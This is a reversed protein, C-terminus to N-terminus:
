NCKLYNMFNNNMTENVGVARRRAGTGTRPAELDARTERRAAEPAGKLPGQVPVTSIGSVILNERQAFNNNCIKSDSRPYL